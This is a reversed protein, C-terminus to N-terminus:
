GLLSLRGLRARCAAPLRDEAQMWGPHFDVQGGTQCRHPKNLSLHLSYGEGLCPWTLTCVTRSPPPSGLQRTEFYAKPPSPLFFNPFHPSTASFSGQPHEQLAACVRASTVALWQTPPEEWQLLLRIPQNVFGFEVVHRYSGSHSKSVTLM